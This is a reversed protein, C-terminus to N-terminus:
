EADEAELIPKLKMRLRHSPGALALNREAESMGMINQPLYEEFYHEKYRITLYMSFGELHSPKSITELVPAPKYNEDVVQLEVRERDPPEIGNLCDIYDPLESEPVYLPMLKRCCKKWKEGSGCFCAANPPHSLLPNRVFGPRPAFSHVEPAHQRDKYNDTM